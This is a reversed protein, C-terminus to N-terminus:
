AAERVGYAAALLLVMFVMGLAWGLCVAQLSTLRWRDVVARGGYVGALTALIGFAAGIM